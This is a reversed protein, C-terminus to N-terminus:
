GVSESLQEMGKCETLTIGDSIVGSIQVNTFSCRLFVSNSFDVNDFRCDTFHADSLISRSLDVSSFYVSRFQVEEFQSGSMACGNWTCDEIVRRVLQFAESHFRAARSLDVAIVGKREVSELLTDLEAQSGWDGIKLRLSANSYVERKKDSEAVVHDLLVWFIAVKFCEVGLMLLTTAFTVKEDIRIQLGLSLLGVLILAGIIAYKSTPSRM